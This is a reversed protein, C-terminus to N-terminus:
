PLKKRRRTILAAIGAALALVSCPEPVPVIQFGNLFANPWPGTAGIVLSGDTVQVDHISHTLGLQFQNGPMIGSVRQPNQSSSGSVMIDAEGYQGNPKVSYTYVLYRGPALGTITYRFGEGIQDADNLLLNYDGTNVPNNWGGGGGTGQAVAIVSTLTGSTDRLALPENNNDTYFSTWFGVQGAAAGFSSSPTGGGVISSSNFLDTDVNFAQAGGNSAFCGAIGIAWISRFVKM